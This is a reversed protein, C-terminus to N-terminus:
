QFNTIDLKLQPRVQQKM